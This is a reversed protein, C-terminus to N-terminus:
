DHNVEGPKETNYKDIASALALRAFGAVSIKEKEAIREIEQVTEVNVRVSLPTKESEADRITRFDM